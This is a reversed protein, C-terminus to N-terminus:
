ELLDEAKTSGAKVKELINSIQPTDAALNDAEEIYAQLASEVKEGM